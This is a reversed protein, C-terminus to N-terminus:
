QPWGITNFIVVAQRAQHKADDLANHATATDPMTIGPDASVRRLTRFCMAQRYSWPVPQGIKRYAAALLVLDFDAGRSWLREAGEIEAELLGLATAVSVTKTADRADLLLSSAELSQSNWWGLTDLDVSFGLRESDLRDVVGYLSRGLGDPGFWVAGISLICSGPTTGLTEIDIMVDKM